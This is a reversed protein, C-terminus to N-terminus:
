CRSCGVCNQVVCYNSREEFGIELNMGKTHDEEALRLYSLAIEFEYILSNLLLCLLKLILIDIHCPFVCIKLTHISKVRVM